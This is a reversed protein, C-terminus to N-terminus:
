GKGSFSFLISQFIKVFAKGVSPNDIISDGNQFPKDIVPGYKYGGHQITFDLSSDSTIILTFEKDCVLMVDDRHKQNSYIQM